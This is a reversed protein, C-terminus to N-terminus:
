NVAFIARKILKGSIPCSRPIRETFAHYYRTICATGHSVVTTYIVSNHNIKQMVNKCMAGCSLAFSIHQYSRIDGM